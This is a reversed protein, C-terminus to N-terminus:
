LETDNPGVPFVYPRHSNDLPLVRVYKGLEPRRLMTQCLEILRHPPCTPRHYLIPTVIENLMRCTKCLSVLAALRDRELDIAAISGPEEDLPTCHVCLERAIISFVISNLFPAM